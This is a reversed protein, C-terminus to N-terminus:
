TSADPDGRRREVVRGGAAAIEDATMRALRARRTAQCASCFGLGDADLEIAWRGAVLDFTPRRYVGDGKVTRRTGADRLYSPMKSRDGRGWVCMRRWDDLSMRGGEIGPWVGSGAFRAVTLEGATDTDTDDAEGEGRAIVFASWCLHGRLTPHLHDCRDGPQPDFAPDRGRFAGLPRASWTRRTM